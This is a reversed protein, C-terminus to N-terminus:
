STEIPVLKHGFEALAAEIQEAANARWIIICSHDEVNEVREIAVARIVSDIVINGPNKM